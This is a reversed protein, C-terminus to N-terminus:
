GERRVAISRAPADSAFDASRPFVQLESPGAGAAYERRQKVLAVWDGFV